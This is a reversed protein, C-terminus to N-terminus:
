VFFLISGVFFIFVGLCGSSKRSPLPRPPAFRPLVFAPQASGACWAPDYKSRRIPDSLVSYAEKGASAQSPNMSVLNSWDFKLRYAYVIEVLTADASVGLLEYYGNPDRRRDYAHQRDYPTEDGESGVWGPSRPSAHDQPLEGYADDESSRYPQTPEAPKAWVPDYVARSNADGLVSYAQEAAKRVFELGPGEAAKLAANYAAVVQDATADVPVGLLSYYGDRDRDSM